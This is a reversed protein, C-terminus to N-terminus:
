KKEAPHELRLVAAMALACLSALNISAVRKGDVKLHVRKEYDMGANDFSTGTVVADVECQDPEHWDIGVWTGIGGFIAARFFDADQEFVHLLRDKGPFGAVVTGEQVLAALADRERIEDKGLHSKDIDFRRSARQAPRSYKTKTAM